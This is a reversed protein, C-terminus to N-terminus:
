SMTDDLTLWQTWTQPEGRKDRLNGAINTDYEADAPALYIAGLFAQNEPLGLAQYGEPERLIGGTAWYTYLGRAEAALMLNQAASSAAAIHEINKTNMEPELTDPHPEPLWTVLVVAGAGSLLGPVKSQWAKAWISDPHAQANNEITQLFRCCASKEMVYFRWPVVSSLDGQRHTIHAMKHFPAWGAVAIIAELQEHLQQLAKESYDACADPKRIIKATKREMIVHEVARVFNEPQMNEPPNAM